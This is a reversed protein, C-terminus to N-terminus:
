QAQVVVRRAFLVGEDADPRRHARPVLHIVDHGRDQFSQALFADCIHRGRAILQGVSAGVAPQDVWGMRVVFAVDFLWVSQRFLTRARARLRSAGPSAWSSVLLVPSAMRTVVM